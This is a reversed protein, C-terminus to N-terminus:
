WAVVECERDHDFRSSCWDLRANEGWSSAIRQRKRAFHAAKDLFPYATRDAHEPRWSSTFRGGKLVQGCHQRSLFRDDVQVFGTQRFYVQKQEVVENNVCGRRRFRHRRADARELQRRPRAIFHELVQHGDV